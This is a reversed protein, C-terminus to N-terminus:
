AWIKESQDVSITALITNGQKLDVSAPNHDPDVVVFPISVSTYQTLTETPWNVAVIPSTEGAIIQAVAATLHNSELPEGNVEITGYVEISHAGHALGSITKTIRRGSTTIQSTSHLDGDVYTYITKTGNGTPTIYFSLSEEENVNTDNLSWGISFTELTITFTRTATAGYSDAMVLRVTNSGSTLYRFVDVSINDGQQITMNSRVIGGVIISLTGAGTPVDTTADTSTFKFRIPASGVSEIVSFSPNTYCSFTLNSGGAASSSGSIFCPDVVDIGDKTIHLFGTDKDYNIADFSLGGGSVSLTIEVGTYQGNSLFKLVGTETNFEIGNYYCSENVSESQQRIATLLAARAAAIKSNVEASTDYKGELYALSPYKAAKDEPAVQADASTVKNDYSEVNPGFAIVNGNKRKIFFVGTDEAFVLEAIEVKSPDFDEQNGRRLIVRAQHYNESNNGM